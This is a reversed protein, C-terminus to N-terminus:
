QPESRARDRTAHRSLSVAVEGGPSATGNWPSAGIWRRLEEIGTIIPIGHAARDDKQVFGTPDYYISPKGAAQAMLATSTFPMSIVLASNEIVRVASIEPDIAILSGSRSLREVVGAYSRHLMRGIQRKRKLAIARGDMSAAAHIDLLFQNATQPTYYENPVGLRQYRSPRQPQVDFVAITGPPLAPLDKGSSQFWIPGVVSINANEGIARRVFDAQYEDWVLYRPWTMVQWSHLPTTYGDPQKLAENNTSYFYFTV